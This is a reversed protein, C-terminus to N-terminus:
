ANERFLSVTDASGLFEHGSTLEFLKAAAAVEFYRLWGHSM